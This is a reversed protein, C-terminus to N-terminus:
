KKKHKNLAVLEKTWWFFLPIAMAVILISLLGLGAMINSISALLDVTTSSPLALAGPEAAVIPPPAFLNFTSENYYGTGQGIMHLCSVITSGTLCSGQGNEAQNTSIITYTGIGASIFGLQSPSYTGDASPYPYGHISDTDGVIMGAYNVLVVRRSDNSTVAIQLDSFNISSAPSTSLAAFAPLASLALPILISITIFLKKM